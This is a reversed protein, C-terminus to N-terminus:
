VGMVNYQTQSYVVHNNDSNSPSIFPVGTSKKDSGSTGGGGGGSTTTTDIVQTKPEDLTTVGNKKPNSDIKVDKNKTNSDIKPDQKTGDIQAEYKKRIELKEKAMEKNFTGDKLDKRSADKRLESEKAEMDARMNDRIGIVKDRQTIYNAVIEKQEPTGAKEVTQQGKGRNDAKGVYFKENKGTGKVTIGAEALPGKLEDFKQKFKVGGAGKTSAADVGKKLAFLVGIGAAIGLAILGAPSAMFAMMAGGLSIVTSIIGSIIGPLALLGGNLILFIGGVIAVSKIITNRMKKFTETDGSMHAQIMKIAKNAVFGAFLAMFADGLRGLIGKVSKGVAEVPKLLSKGVSKGVRELLGEKKKKKDKDDDIKQQRQDERQNKKEKEADGVLIKSVKQINLKVINKLLTIKKSNNEVQKVLSNILKNQPQIKKDEPRDGLKSEQPDGESLEGKKIINKDSKVIAGFKALPGRINGVKALASSKKGFVSSTRIKRRKFIGIREKKTLYRGTSPDVGTDAADLNPNSLM